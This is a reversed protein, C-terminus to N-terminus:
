PSGSARDSGVGVLPQSHHCRLADGVLHEVAPGIGSAAGSVTPDAGTRASAMVQNVQGLLAHMHLRIKPVELANFFEGGIWTKVRGVGGHLYVGRGVRGTLLRVTQRQGTDLVKGGAQLAELLVAERLRPWPDRHRHLGSVVRM